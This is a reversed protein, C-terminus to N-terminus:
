FRPQLYTPVVIPVQWQSTAIMSVRYFLLNDARSNTHLLKVLWMHLVRFALHTLRSYHTCCYLTVELIEQSLPNILFDTEPDLVDEVLKSGFVTFSRSQLIGHCLCLKFLDANSIAIEISNEAIKIKLINSGEFISLCKRLISQSSAEDEAMTLAVCFAISGLM